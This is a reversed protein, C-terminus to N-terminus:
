FHVLLSTIANASIYSHYFAFLFSVKCQLVQLLIDPDCFETEDEINLKKNGEVLWELMEELSPPVGTSPIWNVTEEVEILQSYCELQDNSPRQFM